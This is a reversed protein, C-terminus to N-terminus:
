RTKSAARLVGDISSQPAVLPGTRRRGACQLANHFAAESPGARLGDYRDVNAKPENHLAMRRIINLLGM